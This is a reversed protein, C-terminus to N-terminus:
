KVKAKVDRIDREAATMRTELKATLIATKLVTGTAGFLLLVTFGQFIGNPDLTM